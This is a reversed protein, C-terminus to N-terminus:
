SFVITKNKSIFVKDNLIHELAHILTLKEIDRGIKKLDHVGLSHNVSKVQQAIIPGEDLDKTVVHATAGIIKVGRNFAQRYPNAGIFAPLFSHHINIIKNKYHSVFHESLIRMYRALVIYDPSYHQICELIQQEHMHRDETAPLYHFPIQFSETLHKIDAEHNAIVAKIEANLTDYKARMIIEGICHYEKSALLVLKKKTHTHITLNLSKHVVQQLAKKCEQELTSLNVHAKLPTCTLRAFFHKSETEVHEQLNVINIAKLYLVNSIHSIIGINDPCDIKIIINEQAM